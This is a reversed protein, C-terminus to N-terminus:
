WTIYGNLGWKMGLQMYRHYQSFVSYMIVLENSDEGTEKHACMERALNLFLKNMM